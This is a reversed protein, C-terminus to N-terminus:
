ALRGAHQAPPGRHTRWGRGRAQCAARAMAASHATCCCCCLLPGPMNGWRVRCRFCCTCESIAAGSGVPPCVSGLLGQGLVRCIAMGGHLCGRSRRRKGQQSSLSPCAGWGHAGPVGLGLGGRGAARQRPEVLGHWVGCAATSDSAKHVSRSISSISVCACARVHACVVCVCQMCLCLVYECM